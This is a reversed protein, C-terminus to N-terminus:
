HDFHFVVHCQGNKEETKIRDAYRKILFGSLRFVATADELLDERSPPQPQLDLLRGQYDFTVDLSMEDFSADVVIPGRTLKLRILSETFEAMAWEARKVVERRSGWSAGQQEIFTSIKGTCDTDDPAISVTRHKAIGLRFVLNLLVVTITALSLGSSCIPQLWSPVDRYARPYLFVSLGFIFSTGIVFIKRADLMRTTIIQIGALIMFNAAFILIAGM